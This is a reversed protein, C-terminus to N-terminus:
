KTSSQAADPGAGASARPEHNAIVAAAIEAAATVYPACIQRRKEHDKEGRTLEECTMTQFKQRFETLFKEGAEYARLRQGADLRSRGFMAGLALLAGTVAGCTAGTGSMGGGFCTACQIPPKREAIESVALTVSEACNWGEKFYELARQGQRAPNVSGNMGM